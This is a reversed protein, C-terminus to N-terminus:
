DFLDIRSKRALPRMSTLTSTLVPSLPYSRGESFRGFSLHKLFAHKSVFINPIGVSMAEFLHATRGMKMLTRLKASSSLQIIPKISKRGFMVRKMGPFAEM